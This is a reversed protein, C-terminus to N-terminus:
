GGIRVIVGADDNSLLWPVKVGADMSERFM